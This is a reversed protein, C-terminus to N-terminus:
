ILTSPLRGPVLHIDSTIGSSTGRTRLFDAYRMGFPGIATLKDLSEQFMRDAKKPRGASEYAGALIATAEAEVHPLGLKRGLKCGFAAAKVAERGRNLLVYVRAADLQAGCYGTLDEEQEAIALASKIANIAREDGASASARALSRLVISMIGTQDSEASVAVLAAEASALAGARREVRQLDSLTSSALAVSLGFASARYADIADGLLDIAEDTRGEGIAVSAAREALLGRRDAPLEDSSLAVLTPEFSGPEDGSRFLDDAIQMQLMPQGIAVALGAHTEVARWMSLSDGSEM